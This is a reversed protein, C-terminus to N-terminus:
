TLHHLLCGEIQEIPGRERLCVEINSCSKHAVATPASPMSVRVGTLTVTKSVVPCHQVKSFSSRTGM